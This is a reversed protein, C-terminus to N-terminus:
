LINKQKQEAYSYKIELAILKYNLNGLLLDPITPKKACRYTLRLIYCCFYSIPGLIYQHSTIGMM